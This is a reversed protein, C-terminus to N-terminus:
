YTSKVQCCFAVSVLKSKEKETHHGM